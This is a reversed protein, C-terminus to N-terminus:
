TSKPEQVNTSWRQQPHIPKEFWAELVWSIQM